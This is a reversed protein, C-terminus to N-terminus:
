MEDIVIDLVFNNQDRKTVYWILETNTQNMYDIMEQSLFNELDYDGTLHIYNNIELIMQEKLEKM